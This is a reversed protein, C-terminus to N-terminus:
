EYRLAIIPDVGAARRAPVYCALLGVSALVVAVGVFALSDVASLGYLLRAGVRSVAAALAAGIAGGILILRGSQWILMRVVGKPAAGLAIRIGIERTRQTVAFATVSTIGIAALLLALFGLATSLGAALESPWIWLALNDALVKCNVPVSADLQRSIGPLSTTLARASGSTRVFIQPDGREEAGAGAPLVYLYPVDASWLYVNRVDAAIGIVEYLPATPGFRVHKGLADEDPWLKQALSKSLIAVRASSSFERETFTRGRLLAIGLADFFEPSVSNTNTTMPRQGPQVEKGEAMIGTAHFSDGLPVTQGQSVSIVGPVTAIRSKLERIAAARRAPTYNRARFNLSLVAVNNLNFGPDISRAKGLARALLGAAVLLFVSMAIQSIVLASRLKSGSAGFGSFSEQRLARLPDQRSVRVAPLVGSVLGAFLGAAALYLAVRWDPNLNLTLAQENPPHLFTRLSAAGWWSLLLGLAAAAGGLLLSETLLQRILRLRSAGISVRIGLERQRAIGRSLQLNAVNACAILLVLGVAFFIIAAIPLVSSKQEPDLFGATAVFTTRNKERQDAEDAHYRAALLAMETQAASVTTSPKLRAIVRLWGSNRDQLMSNGFHINSSMMLPVWLATNDPETGIFDPPMIGIVSYKLSNLEIQKGIIFPDGGFRTQWMGYSLVAVPHTGETSDEDASFTRGRFAPTGLVDFFNGSVIQSRIWAPESGASNQLDGVIITAGSYAATGSFVSNHDRCFKYEDFSFVQGQQREGRVQSYLSVVRSPDAVPLPKLVVANFLSFITANVGIGLALTLIAMATYGPQKALVRVGYTIDRWLANAASEWTAARVHEKVSAASGMEARAAREAERRSIGTDRKAAASRSLYDQLEENMEGETRERHVLNRMGAIINKLLNM